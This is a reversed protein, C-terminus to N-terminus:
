RQNTSGASGCRVIRDALWAPVVGQDEIEAAFDALRSAGIVMERRADASKTHRTADLIMRVQRRIEAVATDINMDM